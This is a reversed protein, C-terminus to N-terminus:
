ILFKEIIKFVLVNINIKNFDKINLLKNKDKIFFRFFVNLKDDKYNNFNIINFKHSNSKTVLKIKLSKSKQKKLNTKILLDKSCLYFFNKKIKKFKPLEKFNWYYIISLFHYFIFFNNNIVYIKKLGEKKIIKRLDLIIQSFILEELVIIKKNKLLSYNFISISPTEIIIQGKYNIKELKKIYKYTEYKNLSIIIVNSILLDKLNDTFLQDNIKKLRLIKKIKIYKNKLYFKKVRESYGVISLEM